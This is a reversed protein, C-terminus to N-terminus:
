LFSENTNTNLPAGHEKLRRCIQRITKGIYQADCTSCSILYVVGSQLYKPIDDKNKFLHGVKHPPRQVITLQTEPKIKKALKSIDKSFQQSSRGTYPVNMLLKDKHTETNNSNLQVTQNVKYEKIFNQKDIYRNLTHRIQCEVFSEPYGNRRTVDRIFNFEDHMLAFSSAIRIARYVMSSVASIKYTKPVFSSWKIILYTYTPKRYVSKEFSNNKRRILVDLFPLENNQEQESTFQIDKHISNLINKIDNLKTNKHIITFTDDVYRKYWLLGATKLQKMLKNELHTMFIDALVPALPSEMAIGNNQQYYINNFSFHTDSTAINLLKKMDKRNLCRICWDSHSRIYKPCNHEPEYMRNLVLDITYTLPVKTFLSTVDFSIMKHEVMTKNLKKISDIFDFTDKLTHENKGLPQLKQALLKSLRYNYSGISSMVPRLPIGAKHIKPLGYMRACHSGCPTAQKYESESLFGRKVM